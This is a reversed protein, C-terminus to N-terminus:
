ICAPSAKSRACRGSRKSASGGQGEAKQDDAGAIRQLVSEPVHVGPVHEAMRRLAKASSLTGVGVLIAAASTCAASRAGRAHFRSSCRRPRLLVADPHVARRRRDQKGPQRHPRAFPPVFPNATAGLFLKPAVDLKRGSAYMAATACAARCTCCRCRTSTSCRSPRPHDGQSVDDGTLCLVNRVGLAAAGLMDGQM